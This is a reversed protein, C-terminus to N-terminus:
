SNSYVIGYHRAFALPAMNLATHIRCNNYIYIANYIAYILEGLTEYRNPDAFDIKFQGYFSEQYGNEWPCGPASMSQQIGLKKCLMTYDRSKYESGRDSHLIIPRKNKTVANLLANMVLERSHNTMISFGVIERTFIDLITALYIWKGKWM